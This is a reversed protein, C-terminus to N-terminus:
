LHSATLAVVAQDIAAKGKAASSLPGGVLFAFTVRHGAADTVFGALARTGDLTGTKAHVRGAAVTGCFRHILTGDVCAVPLGAYLANGLSTTMAAELWTVEGDATVRDFSSLGSGDEINGGLQVHMAAASARVAAVGGAPTGNGTQAGVAELLMEADFNVSQKLMDHVISALPPSLVRALPHLSVTARGISLPGNVTVGASALATRVAQLNGLSPDALYSADARWSNGNIALASLPGVEGPVWESKWGAARRVRSLRSDDLQLGGTVAHIGKSRLQRGLAVLGAKTLTPDGGASLVLRGHITGNKDAAVLSGLSTAFRYTPGLVRLATYATILKETSAPAVATSATHSFVEGRGAVDVRVSMGTSASTALIADLSAALSTVPGAAQAPAATAPATLLVVGAALAVVTRRM